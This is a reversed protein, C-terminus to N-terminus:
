KSGELYMNSTCPLQDNGTQENNTSKIFIDEMAFLNFTTTLHNCLTVRSVEEREIFTVCYFSVISPLRANFFDRFHSNSLINPHLSRLDRIASKGKKIEYRIVPFFNPERIIERIPYTHFDEMPIFFTQIKIYRFQDM